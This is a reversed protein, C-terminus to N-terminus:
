RSATSLTAVVVRKEEIKAIPPMVFQGYEQITYPLVESDVERPNRSYAMLRLMETTNMQTLRKCLVDVATNTPACVLVKLMPESKVFQLIAEVLTTTKGTGPPGFVVFPYPMHSRDVIRSVARWQEPNDRVNRNFPSTTVNKTTMLAEHSPDESPFLVNKTLDPTVYGLGQHFLRWPRRNLIFQIEVRQGSIYADHLRNDFRLLVDEREVIEVEGKYIKTEGRLRALLYDGKLLSPRKEALGAVTLRLHRGSKEFTTAKDGELNFLALDGELQIEESWLLRRHLHIYAKTIKLHDNSAGVGELAEHARQVEDHEEGLKCNERWDRPIGHKELHPGTRTISPPSKWPPPPRIESGQWWNTPAKRRKPEFPASPGLDNLLDADGSTHMCVCLLLLFVYFLCCFYVTVRSLSFKFSSYLTLAMYVHVDMWGYM